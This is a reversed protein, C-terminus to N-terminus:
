QTDTYIVVIRGSDRAAAAIAQTANNTDSTKDGTGYIGNGVLPMRITGTYASLANFGSLCIDYLLQWRSNNLIRSSVVFFFVKKPHHSCTKIIWGGDELTRTEVTQWQAPTAMNEFFYKYVAGAQGGDSRDLGRKFHQSGGAIVVIHDQMDPTYRSTNITVNQVATTQKVPTVAITESILDSQLSMSDLKQLLLKNAVLFVGAVTGLSVVGAIFADM